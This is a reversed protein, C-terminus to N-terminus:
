EDRLEEPFEQMIEIDVGAAELSAKPYGWLM